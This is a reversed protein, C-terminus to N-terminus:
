YYKKLENQIKGSQYININRERFFWLLISPMNFNGHCIQLVTYHRYTSNFNLMLIVQIHWSKCFYM